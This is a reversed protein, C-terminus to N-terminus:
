FLEIENPPTARAVRKAYAADQLALEDDTALERVHAQGTRTEFTVKRACVGGVREGVIPLGEVGLYTRAFAVNDDGITMNGRIVHGGGVLKAQLRRRDAGARLITNILHEMAFIGYRAADSSGLNTADIARGGPSPIMFHNMGGIGANPDWICASVCSGLLTTIVEDARGVYFEGPLIRVTTRGGPTRSVLSPQTPGAVSNTAPRRRAPSAPRTRRGTATM